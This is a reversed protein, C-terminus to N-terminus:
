ISIQDKMKIFFKVEEKTYFERLSMNLVRAMAIKIINSTAFFSRNKQEKQQLTRLSLREDSGNGELIENVIRVFKSQSLGREERTKKVKEALLKAEKSLYMDKM